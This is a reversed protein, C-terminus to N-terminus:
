QTDFGTKQLQRIRHILLDIERYGTSVPLNDDDFKEKGQEMARTVNVIPRSISFGVSWGFFISLLVALISTAAGAIITRRARDSSTKEMNYMQQQNLNLLEYFHEKLMQFIPLIEVTYVQLKNDTDSITFFRECTRVYRQVDSRINNILLEEGLVTVNSDALQIFHLIQSKHVNFDHEAEDHGSFASLIDSDMRESLEIMQTSYGISRYNEELVTNISDQLFGLHYGAYLSFALLLLAVLIYGSLIKFKITRL